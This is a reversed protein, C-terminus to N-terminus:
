AEILVQDLIFVQHKAPTCNSLVRIRSPLRAARGAFSIGLTQLEVELRRPQQNM